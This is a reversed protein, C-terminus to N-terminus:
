PRDDPNPIRTTRHASGSYGNISFPELSAPSLYPGFRTFFFPSTRKVSLFIIAESGPHTGFAHVGQGVRRGHPAGYQREGETGTAQVSGFVTMWRGSRRLTGCVQGNM